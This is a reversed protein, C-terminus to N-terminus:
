EYSRIFIPMYTLHYATSIKPMGQLNIRAQMIYFSLQHYSRYLRCCSCEHCVRIPVMLYWWDYVSLIWWPNFQIAAAHNFVGYSYIHHPPLFGREGRICANLVLDPFYSILLAEWSLCRRKQSNTGKLPPPPSPRKQGMAFVKQTRCILCM